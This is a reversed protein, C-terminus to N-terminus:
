FSTSFDNMLKKKKSYDSLWEGIKKSIQKQAIALGPPSSSTAPLMDACHATGNILIATVTPSLNTIVSLSHWPDINGNVFLINTPGTALKRSGYYVNTQNILDATPFQGFVDSCMMLSLNLPVM